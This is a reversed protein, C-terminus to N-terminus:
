KAARFESLCKLAELHSKRTSLPDASTQFTNIWKSYEDSVGQQECGAIILAKYWDYPRLSQDLDVENALYCSCHVQEGSESTVLFSDDCVYGRGEAADLYRKECTQIEYLVGQAPHASGDVRRLTAKGSGDQSVKSFALEFGIACAIGISSRTASPCRAQLRQQLM